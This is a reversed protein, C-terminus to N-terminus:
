TLAGAEEIVAERGEERSGVSLLDASSEASSITRSERERREGGLASERDHIYELNSCNPGPGVIYRSSRM